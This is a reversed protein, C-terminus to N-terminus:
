TIYNNIYIKHSWLFNFAELVFTNVAEFDIKLLMM